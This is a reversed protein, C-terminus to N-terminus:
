EGDPFLGARDRVLRALQQFRRREARCFFPHAPANIFAVRARKKLLEQSNDHRQEM